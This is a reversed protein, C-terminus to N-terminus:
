GGASIRVQLDQWAKKNIVDSFMPRLLEMGRLTVLASVLQENAVMAQLLM